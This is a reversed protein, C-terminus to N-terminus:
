QLLQAVLAYVAAVRFISDIVMFENAAHWNGGEPGFVCTPIGFGNLIYSENAPGSVAVHSDGGLIQGSAKRLASVVDSEPSIWTPPIFADLNVDVFLSKRRQTVQALVEQIKEEVNARSVSPVLRIDIMAECYDPVVGRDSGGRILTGPTIVTRFKDFLGKDLSTVDFRIRELAVLIEAMGTVANNGIDGNQWETGGSHMAKGHTVIKLRLVGRHGVVIRHMGPYTYIAGRGALKGLSRLYRVGLRGTAGSEEDPVCALLVPQRLQAPSSEKLMLLAAVAAVLGGKNDAAGRGYLRGELIKGEFPSYKWTKEDGPSVTDTHALLLLGPDGRPGVRLLVNPRDEELASVEVDLGHDQAFRVVLEAVKKEADIGNVSPTRVLSRFFEVIAEKPLKQEESVLHNGALPLEQATPQKM